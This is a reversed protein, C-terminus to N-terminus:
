KMRGGQLMQKNHQRRLKRMKYEAAAKTFTFGKGDISLPLVKRGEKTNALFGKVNRTWSEPVVKMNEVEISHAVVLNSYLYTSAALKFQELLNQNVYGENCARLFVNELVRQRDRGEPMLQHGAELLATYTSSDPQFGQSRMDEVSRLATTMVKMRLGEDKVGSNACVRIFASFVEVFSEESSSRQLIERREKMRDLLDIAHTVKDSSRSNRWIDLVHKYSEANPGVNANEPSEGEELELTEDNESTGKGHLVDELASLLMEAHNTAKPSKSVTIAELVHNYNETTPKVTVKTTRHYAKTMEQLLGLARRVARERDIAEEQDDTERATAVNKWALVAAGYCATDPVMMRDKMEVLTADALEGVEPVNVRRSM